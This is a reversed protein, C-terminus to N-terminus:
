WSHACFNEKSNALDEKLSAWNALLTGWHKSAVLSDAHELHCGYWSEEAGPTKAADVSSKESVAVTALSKTISHPPGKHGM